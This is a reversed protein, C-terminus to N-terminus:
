SVFYYNYSLVIYEIYIYIYVCVYMCIYACYFTIHDLVIYDVIVICAYCILCLM